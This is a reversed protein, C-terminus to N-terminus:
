EIGLLKCEERTLKDKAKQTCEREQRAKEKERKRLLAFKEVQEIIYEKDRARSLVMNYSGGGHPGEGQMYGLYVFFIENKYLIMATQYCPMKCTKKMEEFLKGRDRRNLCLMDVDEEIIRDLVDVNDTMYFFYQKTFCDM